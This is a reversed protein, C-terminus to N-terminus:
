FSTDEAKDPYRFSRVFIKDKIGYFVLAGAHLIAPYTFNEIRGFGRSQRISESLVRVLSRSDSIEDYSPMELQTCCKGLEALSHGDSTILAGIDAKEKWDEFFEGARRNAKSPTLFPIWLEASNNYVEIGDFINLHSGSERALGELYKGIGDRYFPHDAIIIGHSFTAEEIVDEVNGPKLHKGEQLGLVLLHGQKTPIEQGKVVLIDKEPVYFGNGFDKREYGELDSFQEYLFDDFNVIGIIGGAGLRKRAVDIAQNFNITLSDSRTKLHNHLDANVKM